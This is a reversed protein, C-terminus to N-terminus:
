PAWADVTVYHTAAPPHTTLLQQVAHVTDIRPAGMATHGGDHLLLNSARNRRQNRALGRTLNRLIGDPGIPTWDYGTVNWMVPILGVERAIRLVIPRRAGFPPRFFRIPAGAIDELLANCDALEQHIRAAPQLSLRPHTMTHNGLLHGQAVIRRVLAPQQRAFAGMCFFTARVKHQALLDLLRPTAIENPGDDFTLAAQTPDNGAILTTGFLQSTPWLSAYRYGGALLGAAAAAAAIAPLATEV